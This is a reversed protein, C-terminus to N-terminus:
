TVRNVVQQARERNPIIQRVESKKAQNWTQNYFILSTSINVHQLAKYSVINGLYYHISILKSFNLKYDDEIHL